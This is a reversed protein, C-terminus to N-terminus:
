VDAVEIHKVILETGSVITVETSGCHMCIMLGADNQSQKGCEHCQVVFPVAIIKLDASCFPVQEKLADFAFCLSDAVVGSAAGVEVTIATVLSLQEESVHNYVTEVINQAISLEHM